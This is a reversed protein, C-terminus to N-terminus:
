IVRLLEPPFRNKITRLTLSQDTGSNCPPLSLRPMLSVNGPRTTSKPLFEHENVNKSLVKRVFSRCAM